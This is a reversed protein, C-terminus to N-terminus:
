GGDCGGKEVLAKAARVVASDPGAIKETILIENRLKNMQRDIEAQYAARLREFLVSDISSPPRYRLSWFMRWPLGYRTELRRWANEMDGPGAAERRTLWKAIGSAEEVHVSSMASGRLFKKRM